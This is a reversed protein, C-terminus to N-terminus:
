PGGLRRVPVQLLPELACKVTGSPHNSRAKIRDWRRAANAVADSTTRGRALPADEREVGVLDIQPWHRQILHGLPGDLAATLCGGSQIALHLRDAAAIGVQSAGDGGSMETPVRYPGAPLARREEGADNGGRAVNAKDTIEVADEAGQVDLGSFRQPFCPKASTNLTEGYGETHVAFLKDRDGGARLAAARHLLRRGHQLFHMAGLRSLRNIDKRQGLLVLVHRADGDGSKRHMEFLGPLATGKQQDRASQALRIHEIPM